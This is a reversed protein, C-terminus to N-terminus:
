GCTLATAGGGAAVPVITSVFGAILGVWSMGGTCASSYPPALVRATMGPRAGLRAFLCALPRLALVFFVGRDGPANQM